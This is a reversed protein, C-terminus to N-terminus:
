EVGNKIELRAFDNEFTRKTEPKYVIEIVETQGPEVVGWNPSLTFSPSEWTWKFVADSNGPNSITISKNTSLSYEDHDFNLDVKQTSM